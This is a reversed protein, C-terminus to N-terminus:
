ERAFHVDYARSSSLSMGRVRGSATRLFRIENTFWASGDFFDRGGPTLEFTTGRTSRAVLRSGQMSVTYAAELEASRYTGVYEALSEPTPPAVRQGVWGGSVATLRCQEADCDITREDPDVFVGDDASWSFDAFEDGEWLRLNDFWPRVTVLRGRVGRYSGLLTDLDPSEPADDNSAAPEPPPEIGLAWGAIDHSLANPEVEPNNALVIVGLRKEPIRLFYSRFGGDAGGHGVARHGHLDHEFLGFVYTMPEGDPLQRPRLLEELESHTLATGDHVAEIWRALDRATTLLATAGLVEYQVLQRRFGGAEDRVYSEARDPVVALASARLHTRTMGAPEFFERQVFEHFPEGTVRAVIEALLTYGSNCYSQREGPAFNTSQQRAILALVQEHTVLDASQWGAMALLSWQDRLGSAHNLLQEITIQEGLAVEPLHESVRDDFRLQGREVLRCVAAATFRKADSAAHFVTDITIPAAHELNAMGAAHQAVIRGNRTVVAVAGPTSANWEGLADEIRAQLAADSPSADDDGPAACATLAVAALLLTFTLRPFSM